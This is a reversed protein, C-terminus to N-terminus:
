EIIMAKKGPNYPKNRWEELTVDKTQRIGRDEIEIIMARM